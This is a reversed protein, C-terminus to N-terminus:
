FEKDLMYDVREALARVKTRARHLTAGVNTLSMNLEEAITKYPKLDVWRKFVEFQEKNLEKEILNMIKPFIEIAKSLRIAEEDTEAEELLDSNGELALFRKREKVIHLCHNYVSVYLYGHLNKIDLLPKGVMRILTDAVADAAEQRDKLVNNACSVLAHVLGPDDFLLAADIKTQEIM